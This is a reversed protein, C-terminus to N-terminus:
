DVAALDRQRRLRSGAPAHVWLVGPRVEVVQGDDLPFVDAARHLLVVADSAVHGATTSRGVVLPSRRRTAVILGPDGAHVVALALAGEVEAVARRVSESLGVGWGLHEEVLHAIVESDTDSTLLHGSTELRARLERHNVVVGNHVVAVRGWCDAHPHANREDPRGHTAWRTHGVGAVAGAPADTLAAALAALGGGRRRRWLRGGAQLAVGTSDYGRPELRALGDVLVPLAPSTGTYAVIGAM